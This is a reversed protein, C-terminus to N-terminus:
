QIRVTSPKTQVVSQTENSRTASVSSKGSGLPGTTSQTSSLAGVSTPPGPRSSLGLVFSLGIADATSLGVSSATASATARGLGSVAALGVSSATSSNTSRGTASASAVGSSSGVGFAFGVGTASVSAAGASSGVSTATSQGTASAVAIGSSSGVSASTARGTAAAAGVGASSAVASFIARGVASAAGVGSSSAASAATSSGTASATATGASTGVSGAGAVSGAADATAVGASSAVSAATSSGTAAAAGVGISSATASFVARGTASAAGVSSSSGVSASTARGTAAAAGVGASSAVSAATSSGTAAATAVGSSSGVASTAGSGSPVVPDTELTWSGGTNTLDRGNGSSDTEPTADDLNWQARLNATRAATEAAFEADVEADTLDTDWVRMGWINGDLYDGYANGGVYGDGSYTAINTVSGTVTSLAGGAETGVYVKVNGSADKRVLIFYWTGVTLTAISIVDTGSENLKLATGGADTRLSHWSSSFIGDLSWFTTVANRDVDLQGWIGVSWAGSGLPLAASPMTFTDAASNFRVALGGAPPAPPPGFFEETLIQGPLGDDWRDAGGRPAREWITNDRDNM